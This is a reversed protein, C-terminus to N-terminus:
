RGPSPANDHRALLGALKTFETQAHEDMAAAFAKSLFPRVLFDLFRAAGRFGAVLRHTLRLSVTTGELDLVIRAPLPVLLRPRWVIRRGPVSVEVSARMRLRRRGVYEDMYVLDGIHGPRRRLTHFRLHTGPWWARYREDSCAIMFDTIASGTVGKLNVTAELTIM